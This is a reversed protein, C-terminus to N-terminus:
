AFISSERELELYKTALTALTVVSATAEVVLIM